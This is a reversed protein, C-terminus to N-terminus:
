NNNQPQTQQVQGAADNLNSNKSSNNTNELSFKNGSTGGSVLGSTL